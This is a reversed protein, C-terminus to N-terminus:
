QVLRGRLDATLNCVRVQAAMGQVPWLHAPVDVGITGLGDVRYDALPGADLAYAMLTADGFDVQLLDGCHVRGAQYEGVDVAVWRVGAAQLQAMTADACYVDGPYNAASYWTAVTLIVAVM